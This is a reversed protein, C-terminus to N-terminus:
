DEQAVARYVRASKLTLATSNLPIPIENYVASIGTKTKPAVRITFTDDAALYEMYDRLHLVYTGDINFCDDILTEGSFVQLNLGEFAFELRVDPHKKIEEVPLTLEYYARKGISYLYKNYPLPKPDTRRLAFLAKLEPGEARECWVAGHDCYVTGDLFYARGDILHFRKAQEDPLLILRVDEVLAGEPSFDLPYERGNVRYKPEIGECPLFWCVTEGNRTTKAVPQALIYDFRVSGLELNFPYFFMAGGKVRIRPLRLKEEGMDVTVDVDDFGPHDLGKEYAGAFFYGCGREDVRVSCKLFSTDRPDASPWVPFFAQKACIGPDFDRIFLHMLRLRDGHPRCVGYRSIPAQFDYDIIPYDNPYRTFRSEQLLRGVPNAGGCFMYYGLWTAGSAFKAFSPGWGDKEGIYPRRHQTVQNGPGIECCAFPIGAFASPAGATDVATAIEEDGRGASIAFRHRPPLATTGREWPADPYGGTLPLLAPDIVKGPWATITFFSAKFGIEEALRRLTHLHAVPGGYENELQVGLVTEGDLFPATQAYLATWFRRVERLYAPDDSRKGKMRDIRAPFGGRAAEGHCWPGIRLVCPMDLQRCLTLFAAIDQNGTFDFVDREENHHNWFVYTSVANLGCERMKLLTERWRARPVRSFHLEGSVIMYPKGNKTFYRTNVGYASETNGYRFGGDRVAVPRAHITIEM